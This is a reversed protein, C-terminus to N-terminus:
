PAFWLWLFAALVGVALLMFGLVKAIVIVWDKWLDLQHM